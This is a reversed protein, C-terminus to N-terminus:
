NVKVFYCLLLFFAFYFFIGYKIINEFKKDFPAYTILLPARTIDNFVDDDFIFTFIM